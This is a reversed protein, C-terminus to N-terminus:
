DNWVVLFDDVLNNIKEFRTNVGIVTSGHRSIANNFDLNEFLIQYSKIFETKNNQIVDFDEDAMDAFINAWVEFLSKNIPSKRMGPLSKRFAHEGFIKKNRLLAIEFSITIDDPELSDYVKYPKLTKSTKSTKSTKQEEGNVVLMASSLFDDIDGKYSSRVFVHFAIFRLILERGAMRGDKVTNKLVKQYVRSTVLVKLLKTIKGQYLANRIEQSSLRMGGTNIRKFINRKVIEPTDPNIITFSLESEMINNVVRSAKPNNEINFYTKGNFDDGWFELNKLKDGKGDNDEGLVFDRITTLRQLGDVVEWTGDKSESVYFMPLPIRLMMSEMLRSKRTADWVFERQFDPSLQITKNKLRRLVTDLAIVKSNISIDQPDFPENNFLEEEYEVGAGVGDEALEEIESLNSM